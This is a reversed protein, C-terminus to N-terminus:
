LSGHWIVVVYFDHEVPPLDQLLFYRTNLISSIILETTSALRRFEVYKTRCQNADIYHQVSNKRTLYRIFSDTVLLLQTYLLGRFLNGSCKDNCYIFFNKLDSTRICEWFIRMMLGSNCCESIYFAAAQCVLLTSITKGKREDKAVVEAGYPSLSLAKQKLTFFCRSRRSGFSGVNQTTCSTLNGFRTCSHPIPLMM